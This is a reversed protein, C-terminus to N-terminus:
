NIGSSQQGGINKFNRQVTGTISPISDEQSSVEAEIQASPAIKLLTIALWVM